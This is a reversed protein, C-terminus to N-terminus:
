KQSDSNSNLSTGTNWNQTEWNWEPAQPPMDARGDISHCQCIVLPDDEPFHSEIVQKREKAAVESHVWSQAIHGGQGDWSGGAKVHWGMGKGCMHALRAFWFHDDLEPPIAYINEQKYACFETPTEAVESGKHYEKYCSNPKRIMHTADQVHVVTKGEANPDIVTQHPILSAEVFQGHGGLSFVDDGPFGKDEM